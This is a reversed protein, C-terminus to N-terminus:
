SSVSKIRVEVLKIMPIAAKGTCSRSITTHSIRAEQEDGYTRFLFTAKLPKQYQIVM